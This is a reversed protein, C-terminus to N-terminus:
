RHAKTPNESRVWGGFVRSTEGIKKSLGVYKKPSIIRAKALLRASAKAEAFLADAQKVLEWREPSNAKKYNSSGVLAIAKSMNQMLASTLDRYNRPCDRIALAMSCFLDEMDRLAHLYEESAGKPQVVEPRLTQDSLDSLKM